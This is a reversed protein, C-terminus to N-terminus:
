PMSTSASRFTVTQQPEVSVMSAVRSATKFGPSSTIM